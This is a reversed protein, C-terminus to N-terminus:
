VGGRVADARDSSCSSAQLHELRDEIWKLPAGLIRSAAALMVITPFMAQKVGFSGGSHPATILRLRNGAVKLSGAMLAHLIFPGQFNSWVTYREPAAEFHAIIGACEMPTAAQRPYRWDLRVVHDAAAFAADPNGYSFTRRHIRNTGADEHVLPADDALAEIPDVVAPLPEYEVAIADLADEAAYRDVAAVLAVPEGVYRVKDVAMPPMGIPARIASALPKTLEAIEAGTVVGFVGDLGSARSADIRRIKAHAHPSRLIAVHRLGPVPAMDDIFRANGTLLAADEQRPLRAGVWTDAASRHPETM